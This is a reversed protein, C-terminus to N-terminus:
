ASDALGLLGFSLGQAHAYGLCLRCTGPAAQHSSPIAGCRNWNAHCAPHLGQPLPCVGAGPWQARGSLHWRCGPLPVIKVAMNALPRLGASRPKNKLACKYQFAMCACVADAMRPLSMVGGTCPRHINDAAAGGHCQLRCAPLGDLWVCPAVPAAEAASYSGSGENRSAFRGLFCTDWSICLGATHSRRVQM